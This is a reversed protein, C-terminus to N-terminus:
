QSVKGTITITAVVAGKADTITAKATGEGVGLVGPYQSSDQDPLPIAVMDNDTTVAYEGKPLGDIIAGAGPELTITSAGPKLVQPGENGPANDADVNFVQVVYQNLIQGGNDNPDGDWVIIRSAGLGVATLGAVTTVGNETGQQHVEVAKPNSSEIVIRNNADDAPLGTFRANQGIKLEIVQGNQDPSIEVPSWTGPDTGVMSGSPSASAASASPAAASASAASSTSSSSCGALVAVGLAGVAAIALATTTSRKMTIGKTLTAV